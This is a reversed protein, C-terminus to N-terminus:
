RSTSSYLSSTEGIKRPLPILSKASTGACISRFSLSAFSSLPPINASCMTGFAQDPQTAHRRAPDVRQPRFRQPPSSIRHPTGAADILEWLDLDPPAVVTMAADGPHAYVSVLGYGVEHWLARQSHWDLVTASSGAGVSAYDGAAM